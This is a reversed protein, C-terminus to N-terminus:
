LLEITIGRYQMGTDTFLEITIGRYQERWHIHLLFHYIIVYM